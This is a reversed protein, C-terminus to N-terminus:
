LNVTSTEQLDLQYYKGGEVRKSQGSKGKAVKKLSLLKESNSGSVFHDFIRSAFCFKFRLKRTNGQYKTLTTISLKLVLGDFPPM